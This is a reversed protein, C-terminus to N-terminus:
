RCARTRCALASHPDERFAFRRSPPSTPGCDRWSPGYRLMPRIRRTTPRWSLARMRPRPSGNWCRAPRRAPRAQGHHATFDAFPRDPRRTRRPRLPDRLRQAASGRPGMPRTRRGQSLGPDPLAYDASVLGDEDAAKLREIVAKAAPTWAGDRVWALPQESAAYFASLSESDAKNLRLERITADNRLREALAIRLADSQISALAAASDPLPIEIVPPPPAVLDGANIIVPAPQEPEPLAAAAKDADGEAPTATAVDHFSPEAPEVVAHEPLGPIEDAVAALSLLSVSGLLVLLPATKRLSRIM